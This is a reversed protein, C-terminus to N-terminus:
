LNITLKKFDVYADELKAIYFIVALMAALALSLSVVPASELITLAYDGINAMVINFDTSLLSLFQMLGSKAIDAYLRLALPIFIFFSLLLGSSQLILRRKLRTLKEERNIRNIIRDYLDARPEILMNNIRYLSGNQNM